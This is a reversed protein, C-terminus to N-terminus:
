YHILSEIKGNLKKSGELEDLEIVFYYGEVIGGLKEILNGASSATGGTALLDDIVAVKQGPQIADIHITQVAQGYELSYSDEITAYPLKGKKRVPVFPKGLREAVAAGFLFGRADLGVIVDSEKM